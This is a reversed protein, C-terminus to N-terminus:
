IQKQKLIKGLNSLLSILRKQFLYAKFKKIFQSLRKKRSRTPLSETSFSIDFIDTSQAVIDSNILKLVKIRISITETNKKENLSSIM